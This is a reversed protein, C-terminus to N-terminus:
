GARARREMPLLAHYTFSHVPTPVGCAVGFRHIAGNWADLESPKGDWIDRAMSSTAVDPLDAYFQWLTGKYGEEIGGVGMARAVAIGEGIAADILARTPEFDRLEGIPSRNLASLGSWSGVMLLKKWLESQIDAEIYTEVGAADFAAKLAECRASPPANMEGFAIIAQQSFHKIVGPAEILSFIKSLGGLVKEAGVVEAIQQSAEVGNLFPVVVTDDKLLPAMQRAVEPIQWTKVAVLVADVQGLRAPDDSVTLDTLHADGLPSDLRLGNARIAELHAGRAVFVVEHGAQQLRIGYYAGLGGSGYIAFRM